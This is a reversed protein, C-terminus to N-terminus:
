KNGVVKKLWRERAIRRALCYLPLLIILWFLGDGLNNYSIEEELIERYENNDPATRLILDDTMKSASDFREELKTVFDGVEVFQSLTVLDKQIQAYELESIRNAYKLTSGEFTMKDESVVYLYCPIKQDYYKNTWYNNASCIRLPLVPQDTPFILTIGVADSLFCTDTQAVFFYMWGKNMYEQLIALTKVPAQYGNNNLWAALTDAQNTYIVMPQRISRMQASGVEPYDTGYEEEHFASGGYCGYAINDSGHRVPASLRSFENFLTSDGPVIIPRSPLPIIWASSRYPNLYTKFMISLEELGDFYKIIAIKGGCNNVFDVPPIIVGAAYTFSCLLFIGSLVKM